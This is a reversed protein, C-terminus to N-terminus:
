IRRIFNKQPKYGALRLEWLNQRDSETEVKHFGLEGYHNRVLENRATPIYEGRISKLGRAKGEECLHNLLFSEVGRKLVRCSMLWTDIELVDQRVHALVVSILGNDGFRDSLSVTVTVWDPLQMLEMVEAVNRRRTTLNFQNSKNILQTSRELTTTQIPGITATMDLSRLFDELGGASAQIEARKVNARYYQTRKFDDSGLTVVQFYRHRELVEV